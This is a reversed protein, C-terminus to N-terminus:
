FDIIVKKVLGKVAKKITAEDAYYDVGDPFVFKFYKVYKTNKNAINILENM